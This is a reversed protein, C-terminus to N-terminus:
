AGRHPIYACGGRLERLLGLTKKLATPPDDGAARCRQYEDMVPKIQPLQKRADEDSMIIAPLIGAIEMRDFFSPRAAANQNTELM